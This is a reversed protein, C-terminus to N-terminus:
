LRQHGIRRGRRPVEGGQEDLVLVECNTHGKGRIRGATWNRPPLFSVRKCETLGYMSYFRCQPFLKGLRRIHEVPLAAATNTLYRLPSLDFQDINRMKLLMAGMTPVIPFGTVREKQMRELIKVPYAFSRELVVKGGYLFAM